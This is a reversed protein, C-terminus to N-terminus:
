RLASLVHNNTLPSKIEDVQDEPTNCPRRREAKMVRTAEEIAKHIAEVTWWGATPKAIDKISNWGEELVRSIIDKVRFKKSCVNCKVTKKPGKYSYMRFSKLNDVASLTGTCSETQCSCLMNQFFLRHPNSNQLQRQPQPQNPIPNPNPNPNRHNQLRVQVQGVDPFDFTSTMIKDLYAQLRALAGPRRLRETLFEFGHLWVLFHMHLSLRAQEETVGAYAKTYGFIGPKEGCKGTASCGLFVRLFVQLMREYALAAAGPNTELLKFRLAKSPMTPGTSKRSKNETEEDKRGTALFYVDISCGDHPNCTVFLSGHGLAYYMSNLKSRAIKSAEETHPMAGCAAKCNKLFQNHINKHDAHQPIPRNKSIAYAREELRLAHLALQSATLKSYQQVRTQSQGPGKFTGTFYAKASAKKRAAISYACLGFDSDQFNRSASRLYHQICQEFGVPVARAENPGGRGFPFAHPFQHLLYDPEWDRAYTKSARVHFLKEHSADDDEAAARLIDAGDMNVPSVFTTASMAGMALSKAENSGHAGAINEPRICDEAESDDDDSNDIELMFSSHANEPLANLRDSDQKYDKYVLVNNKLSFALLAEVRSRRVLTYRNLNVLDACKKPGSVYVRLPTQSETHPLILKREVEANDLRVSYSHGKLAFQGVATNRNLKRGKFVRVVGNLLLPSVLKREAESSDRFEPPLKGVYFGNAIAHKPLLDKKLATSCTTCVCFAKRDVTTESAHIVGEASLMLKRLARKTKRDIGFYPEDPSDGDKLVYNERQTVDYCKALRTNIDPPPALIGGALHVLESASYEKHKLGPRIFQECVACASITKRLENVAENVRDDILQQDIM